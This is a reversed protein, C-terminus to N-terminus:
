SSSRKNRKSKSTEEENNETTFPVEPVSDQAEEEPSTFNLDLLSLQNELRTNAAELEKIRSYAESLLAHVFNVRAYSSDLEKQLERLRSSISGDYYM